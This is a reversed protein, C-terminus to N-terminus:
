SVERRSAYAAGGGVFVLGVMLSLVVSGGLDKIEFAKGLKYRVGNTQIANSM